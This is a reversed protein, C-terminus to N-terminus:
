CEKIQEENIEVGQEECVFINRGEKVKPIIRVKKIGSIDELPYSEINKADYEGLETNEFSDLPKTEGGYDLSLIFRYLEPEEVNNKANFRFRYTIEDMVRPDINGVSIIEYCFDGVVFDVESCLQQELAEEASNKVIYRSWSFVLGAVVVVMGILLITSIIPSLGRKM